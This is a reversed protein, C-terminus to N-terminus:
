PKILDEGERERTITLLIVLPVRVPYYYTASPRLNGGARLFHRM